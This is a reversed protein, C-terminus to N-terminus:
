QHDQYHRGVKALSDSEAAGLLTTTSSMVVALQGCGTRLSGDARVAADYHPDSLIPPAQMVRDM